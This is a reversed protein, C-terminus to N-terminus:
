HGQTTAQSAVHFHKASKSNKRLDVKPTLETIPSPGNATGHSQALTARRPEIGPIRLQAVMASAKDAM